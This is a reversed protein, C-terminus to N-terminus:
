GHCPLSDNSNTFQGRVSSSPDIRLTRGRAAESSRDICELLSPSSAPRMQLRPTDAASPLEPKSMAERRRGCRGVSEIRDQDEQHRQTHPRASPFCLLAVGLLVPSQKQKRSKSRRPDPARTRGGGM